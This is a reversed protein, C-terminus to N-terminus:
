KNELIERLKAQRAQILQVMFEARKESLRCKVDFKTLEYILERVNDISFSICKLMLERQEPKNLCFMRIFDFMLPRKEDTMKWKMHNPGRNIYDSVKNTNFKYLNEENIEHGLSTGNDFAPSLVFKGHTADRLKGILGWNDQHRDTNGILADFTFIKAWEEYWNDCLVRLREVTEFNHQTGKKLDYDPILKKMFMGGDVYYQEDGYPYDKFFFEILAGCNHDKDNIAVFAPPVKVGILCGFRYAVIEAWFQSPYASRSLKYLYRHRYKSDRNLILFEYGEKPCFCAIKERAGKPYMGSYVDDIPWNSIDVIQNYAQLKKKSM